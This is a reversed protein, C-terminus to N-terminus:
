EGPAAWRLKQHFRMGSEINQAAGLVQQQVVKTDRHELARDTANAADMSRRSAHERALAVQAIIFIIVVRIKM